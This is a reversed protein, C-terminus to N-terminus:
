IRTVSDSELDRRQFNKNQLKDKLNEQLSSAESSSGGHYRTRPKLVRGMAGRIDECVQHM